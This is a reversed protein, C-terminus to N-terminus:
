KLKKNTLFMHINQYFESKLEGLIGWGGDKEVWGVNERVWVFMTGDIDDVCFLKKARLESEAELKEEIEESNVWFINTSLCPNKSDGFCRIRGGGNGAGV